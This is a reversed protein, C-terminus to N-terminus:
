KIVEECIKETLSTHRARDMSLELGDATVWLDVPRGCYPCHGDALKEPGGFGMMSINNTMRTTKPKQNAEAQDPNQRLSCSLAKSIFTM